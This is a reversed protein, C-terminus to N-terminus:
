ICELGFQRCCNLLMEPTPPKVLYCDAGTERARRRDVEEPSSTLIAVNVESKWEQRIWGLVDFGDMGPMKLDLFIFDPLPHKERDAFDRLGALYAIAEEGSEVVHLSASLGADKFARKMFFADDEDDEVLLFICREGNM